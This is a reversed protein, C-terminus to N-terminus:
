PQAGEQPGPPQLTGSYGTGPLPVRGPMPSAAARANAYNQILTQAPTTAGPYQPLLAVALGTIIAWDYGEPFTQVTTLDPFAPVSGGSVSGATYSPPTYSAGAFTYATVLPETVHVQEAILSLGAKNQAQLLVSLAALQENYWNALMANAVILCQNQESTSPTEGPDFVGMQLLAATIAAGGSLSM